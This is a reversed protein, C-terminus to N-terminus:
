VASKETQEFANEISDTQMETKEDRSLINKRIEWLIVIAFIMAPFVSISIIFWKGEQKLFTGLGKIIITSDDNLDSVFYAEDRNTDKIIVLSGKEIDTGEIDFESVFFKYGFIQATNEPNKFFAIKSLLLAIVLFIAALVSVFVVFSVSLIKYVKQKDLQM